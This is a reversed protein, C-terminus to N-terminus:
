YYTNRTWCQINIDILGECCHHKALVIYELLLESEKAPSPLFPLQVTMAKMAKLPCISNQYDHNYIGTICISQLLYAM